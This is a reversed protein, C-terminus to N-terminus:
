ERNKEKHTAIEKANARRYTPFADCSGELGWNQVPWRLETIAQV